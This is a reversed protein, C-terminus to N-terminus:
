YGPRLDDVNTMKAKCGFNVPKDGFKVSVQNEAYKQL